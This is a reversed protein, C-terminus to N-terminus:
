PTPTHQRLFRCIEPLIRRTVGPSLDHGMGDVTVLEAHAIRRATDEGHPLPLLPDQRGHIVLTPTRIRGLELARAFDAMVALTQRAVGAKHYGRDCARTVRELLESAPWPWAPSGIRSFMRVQHDIIQARTGKRPHSMMLNLVDAECHPLGPAGSSSMISTLSRIREPARLAMRQAIMGGMSVGIVHVQQIDLADLVGLADKAMDGISYPLKPTMGLKLKMSEMVISPKGLADLKESLGIDRNDMRIIRYGQQRLEDVFADPWDILQMGLGMILLVPPAYDPGDVRVELQLSNATVQM